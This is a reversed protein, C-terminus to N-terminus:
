QLRGMDKNNHKNRASILERPHQNQEKQQKLSKTENTVKVIQSLISTADVFTLTWRNMM